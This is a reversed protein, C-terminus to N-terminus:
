PHDPGLAKECIGLRAQLAARGRRLPGPEYLGALNNLAPGVHPHEPGLVKEALALARKAVETAEAYKGQGLASSRGTSPTLM